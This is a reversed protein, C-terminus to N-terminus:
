GKVNAYICETPPAPHELPLPAPLAPATTMFAPAATVTPATLLSRRPAKAASSTVAGAAM